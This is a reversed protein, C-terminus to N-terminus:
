KKKIIKSKIKINNADVREQIRNMRDEKELRCSDYHKENINRNFRVVKIECDMLENFLRIFRFMLARSFGRICILANNNKYIFEMFDNYDGIYKDKEIWKNNSKIDVYIEPHINSGLKRVYYCDSFNDELNFDSIELLRNDRILFYTSFVHIKNDCSSRVKDKMKSM